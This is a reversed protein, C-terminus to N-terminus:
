LILRNGLAVFTYKQGDPPAWRQKYDATGGLDIRDFGNEKAWFFCHDILRVMVGHHDFDPDRYNVYAVVDGKHVLVTAGAVPKGTDHLSLTFLLNKKELYDAVLLRDSLDAMKGHGWKEGWNRITWERVGVENIRFDFGTCRNRVKRIHRFHSSQRWFKEFDDECSMGYTPFAEIDKIWPLKEPPFKWRWWGINLTMGLAGLVRWLNGPKHPFLFGPILWQTVPEWSGYRERLGALAVPDGRDEALAIIKRAPGPNQVLMRFLEHPCLETEPLNALAEDLEPEWRDFFKVRLEQRAAHRAILFTKIVKKAPASLDGLFSNGTLM